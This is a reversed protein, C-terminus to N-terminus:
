FHVFAHQSKGPLALREILGHKERDEGYIDNTKMQTAVLCSRLLKM